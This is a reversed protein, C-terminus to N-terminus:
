LGLLANRIWTQSADAHPAVLAVNPDPATVAEGVTGAFERLVGPNQLEGLARMDISRLRDLRAPTVSVGLAALATRQVWRYEARGFGRAGLAEVQARKAVLLLDAADRALLAFDTARAGATDGDPQAARRLAEYREALRAAGAESRAAIESQVAAFRELAARDLLGDDPATWGEDRPLGEDLAAVERLSEVAANLDARMARAPTYVYYWAALAGVGLALLAVVLCGVAAKM